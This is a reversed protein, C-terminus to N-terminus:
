CVLGGYRYQMEALEPSRRTVVPPTRAKKAKRKKKVRGGKAFGEAGPRERYQDALPRLFEILHHQINRNWPNDEAMLGLLNEWTDAGGRELSAIDRDIQQVMEPPDLDSYLAEYLGELIQEAAIMSDNHLRELERAAFERVDPNAGAHPGIRYNRLMNTMASITVNNGDIVNENFYQNALARAQDLGRPEMNQILDQRSMVQIDRAVPTFEAIQAPPAPLQAQQRENRIADRLENLLDRILRVAGTRSAEQLTAFRGAGTFAENQLEFAREAALRFAMEALDPGVPAGNVEAVINRIMAPPVDYQGALDYVDQGALPLGAGQNAVATPDPEWDGAVLDIAPEAQARAPTQDVVAVETSPLSKAAAKIDDVTVFRPLGGSLKLENMIEDPSAHPNASLVGAERAARKFEAPSTSDFIGTNDSLNGGTSMISDARSNLYDKIAGTYAPAVPGNKAGSAYGISFKGDRLASSRSTPILQLTAAPLGTNVDRVSVLQQGNELDKVYSTDSQGRDSRQGTIPDIVPEYYQQKGTLINKRGQPATGCQGVCHDLVATDASMDRMAVDRPTNEDLTIIAANGFTQVNQDTRLRELLTNQLAERYKQEQLKAAKEAEIRSLGKERMYNEITLKSTDGARGTLIDEFLQKGLKEFGLERILTRNATYLTEGEGAKTVSPFFQQETFPLNKLLQERTKPNIAFDSINEVNSALRINELEGQLQERQRLKQRLPNTTEAYGPISAPDIGQAQAQEFLPRRVDELNQIETNLQDLEGTKAQREEYFSGMAPFGAEIRKQALRNTDAFQGAEALVAPDELTIGQRALKVTPDGEAGVNKSIFTTFPGKLVREAEAMRQMFESPTPTTERYEPVVNTLFEEVDALQRRARETRNSYLVEYARQADVPTPADPFMEQAKLKRYNTIARNFDSDPQLYRDAYESAVMEPPMQAAPTDGYIDSVIDDLANYQSEPAYGKASEPVRPQVIRTGKPRVAYLKTDPALAQPVGPVTSLGASRRRDLTDGLADAAAQVRVGLTDEGYLNQRRLGSQAAQFDAPTERLEKAVQRIQGAGVRVDTPTVLPRRPTNPVVPWAHPVKLTDMVKGLGEQFNQGAPTQPSIAEGYRRMLEDASPTKVEQEGRARRYLNGPLANLAQVGASIPAVVPLAAGGVVTRAMDQFSRQMMLPNAQTLVAAARERLSKPREPQSTSVQGPIRSALDPKNYKAELAGLDEDSGYFVGQPDYAM